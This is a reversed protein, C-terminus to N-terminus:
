IFEVKNNKTVNLRTYGPGIISAFMVLLFFFMVVEMVGCVVGICGEHYKLLKLGIESIPDLLRCRMEYGFKELYCKYVAKLFDIFRVVVPIDSM